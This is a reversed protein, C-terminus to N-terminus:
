ARRPVDRRLGSSQRTGDARFIHWLPRRSDSCSHEPTNDLSFAAKVM